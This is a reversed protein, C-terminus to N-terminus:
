TRSCGARSLVTLHGTIPFGTDSVPCYGFQRLTRVSQLYLAPPFTKGPVDRTWAGTAIYEWLFIVPSAPHRTLFRRVARPTVSVVPLTDRAPIRPRAAVAAPYGHYDLM